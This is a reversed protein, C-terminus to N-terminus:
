ATEHNEGGIADNIRGTMRNYHMMYATKGEPEPIAAYPECPMDPSAASRLVGSWYASVHKRTENEARQIHHKLAADIVELESRMEALCIFIEQKRTEAKEAAIANRAAQRKRNEEDGGSKGPRLQLNELEQCMAAIRDSVPSLEKDVENYIYHEYVSLNRITGTIWPTTLGEETKCVQSTNFDRRGRMRDIFLPRRAGPIKGKRSLNTVIRNTM